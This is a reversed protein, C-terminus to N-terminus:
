PDSEIEFIKSKLDLAIRCATVLKGSFVSWCGSGHDIVTSRRADDREARPDVVRVVFISGRYESSAVAPFFESSESAIESWNSDFCVPPDYRSGHFTDLVSGRVHYLLSERTSGNPLISCFPGDMVTVGIRRASRLRIVPVEVLEFKFPRHAFGFWDALENLRSYTCDVVSDFSRGTSRGSSEITLAKLGSPLIRGDTVACHLRLELNPHRAIAFKLLRRLKAIDLIPEPVRYCAAIRERVLYDRSPWGAPHPLKLSECFRVYDTASTQSGDKAICYYNEFDSLLASGFRAIFPPLSALCDRGTVASRPYHYGFHFRNQNGYSAGRLINSSREFVTVRARDALELAATLGFLGGGIVAVRKM